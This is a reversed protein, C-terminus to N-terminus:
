FFFLCTLYNSLQFSPTVMMSVLPTILIEAVRAHSAAANSSPRLFHFHELEVFFFKFFFIEIKKREEFKNDFAELLQLNAAM